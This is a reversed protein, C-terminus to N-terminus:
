SAVVRISALTPDAAYAVRAGAAKAAALEDLIGRTVREGPVLVPIGPPYLAVLEAAVEGAASAAPVARSTAFTADRPTLVVEPANYWSPVTVERRPGAPEARVSEVVADVLVALTFDDDAVTVMAVLVDLEAMELTIGRAALAAGIRVGDLGAGAPQVVLKAPDFGVSTVDDPGPVRLGPCAEVLRRRAAAVREALAGLLATGDSELLWRAGDISALIAGAPSTTNTLDFGTQLRSADLRETRALIVAAQSVSPLSKHASMVMADAGATLAHPPYAPHFGLHAGWAQDVVLPVGHAHAASASARVDSVTGLYGPESLWVAVAEPHEALASTVSAPTPGAPLGTAADSTGALWIPRLGALVLGDVVSRHVGRAVVVSSGPTGLALMLAHNAQSSGCTGFRCWDAGWLVAARQEARELTDDTLKMTDLGGFLPVDSDTARGLRHDLLAARRKHGPVSFPTSPADLAAVYADLLPTEGVASSRM